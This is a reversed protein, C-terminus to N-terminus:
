RTRRGGDASKCVRWRRRCGGGRGRRSRRRALHGSRPVRGLQSLSTKLRRSSLHKPHTGARPFTAPTM